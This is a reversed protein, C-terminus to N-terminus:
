LSHTQLNSHKLYSDLSNFPFSSCRIYVDTQKYEWLLWHLGQQCQWQLISLVNAHGSTPVLTWYALCSMLHWSGYKNPAWNLKSDPAAWLWKFIGVGESASAPSWIPYILSLETTRVRTGQMMQIFGFASLLVDQVVDM